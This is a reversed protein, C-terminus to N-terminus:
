CRSHFVSFSRYLRLFWGRQGLRCIWGLIAVAHGLPFGFDQRRSQHLIDLSWARSAEHRYRFMLCRTGCNRTCFALAHVTLTTLFKFLHFLTSVRALLFLLRNYTERRTCAWCLQALLLPTVTCVEAYSLTAKIDEPGGRLTSNTFVPRESSYYEVLFLTWALNSLASISCGVCM